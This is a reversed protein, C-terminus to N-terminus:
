AIEPLFLGRFKMGDPTPTYGPDSIPLRQSHENPTVEHIIPCPSLGLFGRNSFDQLTAGIYGWLADGQGKVEESDINTRAIAFGRDPDMSLTLYLFTHAGDETEWHYTAFIGQSFALPEIVPERLSGLVPYTRRNRDFDSDEKGM